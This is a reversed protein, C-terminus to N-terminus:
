ASLSRSSSLFSCDSGIEGLTIWASSAAAKTNREVLHALDCRYGRDVIADAAPRSLHTDHAKRNAGPECLKILPEVRQGLEILRSTLLDVFGLTVPKCWRLGRPRHVYPINEASLVEERSPTPWSLNALPRIPPKPLRFM